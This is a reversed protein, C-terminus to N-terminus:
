ASFLSKMASNKGKIEGVDKGTDYLLNCVIRIEEAIELNSKSDLEGTHTNVFKVLSDITQRIRKEIDKETIEKKM